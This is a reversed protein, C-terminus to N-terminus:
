EKRGLADRVLGPDAPEAPTVRLEPHAALARETAARAGAHGALGAAGGRPARGLLDHLPHAPRLGRQWGAGDRLRREHGRGMGGRRRQPPQGLHRGPLRRRHRNHVAMDACANSGDAIDATERYPSDTGSVDHHDRGLVVPGRLRGERVARNFALAITRRGPEDAYLIRAQSGVVMRNGEAALIWAVNDKLQLRVDATASAALTELTQAAIADTTRLDSAEGSTCVWRFPGFGHDFCMPGMIDEVYSPYRFRGGEGSV